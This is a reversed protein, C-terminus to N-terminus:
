AAQLWDRAESEAEFIKVPIHLHEIKRFYNAVMKSCPSQAVIALARCVSPIKRYLVSRADIDFQQCISLDLLWNMRDDLMSYLIEYHENMKGATRPTNKAKLCLLGNEFWCDALPTSFTVGSAPDKMARIAEFRIGATVLVAPFVRIGSFPM